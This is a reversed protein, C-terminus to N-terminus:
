DFQFGLMKVYIAILTIAGLFVPGTLQKSSIPPSNNCTYGLIICFNMLAPCFITSSFDLAQLNIWDIKPGLVGHHRSSDLFILYISLPPIAPCKSLPESTYLLHPFTKKHKNNDYSFKYADLHLCM